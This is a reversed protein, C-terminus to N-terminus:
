AGPELRGGDVRIGLTDAAPLADFLPRPDTTTAFVQAGLSGLATVLRATRAADLESSVDDVLFLPVEGRIRAAAMEALKLALVISRVQGRSGFDRAPRGDIGIRVDDLQPGVRTARRALERDRSQALKDRLAQARSSPDVGPAQTHLGLSLAAPVADEPAVAGVAITAHLDEVHPALEALMRARRDVLDGGLRALEDDLVDLVAAEPRESRLVAAKQDLVRRVARVRDLHGPNATFVARDLWNRRRAPEGTVIEGDTPTFAIARVCAFYERLDGVPKGDLSAIRREAQLDVRLWRDVGAHVVRAGVAATKDGFRVLERVKRGRLPKLTAVLHVVELANTKGQANPGHLVVFQADIPLDLPALNRFSETALRVVRLRAEDADGRLVRRLRGSRPGPM